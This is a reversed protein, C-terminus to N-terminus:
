RIVIGNEKLFAKQVSNLTLSANSDNVIASGLIEGECAIALNAPSGLVKAEWVIAEPRDVTYAYYGTTGVTFTITDTSVHPTAGVTWTFVFGDVEVPVTTVLNLEAVRNGTPDVLVGAAAASFTFVWTGTKVWKRASMGSVTGNGTGAVVATPTVNFKVPMYKYYTDAVAPLNDVRPYGGAIAENANLTTEAM